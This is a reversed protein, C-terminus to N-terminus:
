NIWSMFIDYIERYNKKVNVPKFERNLFCHRTEGAAKVTHTDADLVQYKIAMKFGNFSIIKPLIMVKDNFKVSSKYECSVGLVPILMGMVELKDYDLGIQELFDVRAEEFWRIYNSHHIIAMQDTEYYMAQRIYPNITEGTIKNHSIAEGISDNSSPKNVASSKKNATTKSGELKKSSTVEENKFFTKDSEKNDLNNNM